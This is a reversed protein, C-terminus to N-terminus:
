PMWPISGSCQGWDAFGFRANDWDQAPKNNWNAMWGQEPNLARPMAEWPVFGQWEASGTGDHPLWVDDGQARVPIKGTHWYALNGGTDVVLLNMNPSFGSVARDIEGITQAHQAAWLAEFSEIELGRGATKLTFARRLVSAIVPGHVSTCVDQTVDPAGRVEITEVRCDLDVWAGDFLYKSPDLLNLVEVYMGSNDSSGSTFTM